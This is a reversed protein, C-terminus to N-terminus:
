GMRHKFKLTVTNSLEHHCIECYRITREVMCIEDERILNKEEIVGILDICGPCLERSQISMIYRLMFSEPVLEVEKYRTLRFGRTQSLM